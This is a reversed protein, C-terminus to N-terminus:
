FVSKRLYQLLIFKEVRCFGFDFCCATLYQRKCGDGSVGWHGSIGFEESGASVVRGGAGRLCGLVVVIGFNVEGDEWLLNGGM